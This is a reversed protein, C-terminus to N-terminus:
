YVRALRNNSAVRKPVKHRQNPLRIPGKILDESTDLFNTATYRSATFSRNRAPGALHYAVCRYKALYTPLRTNHNPQKSAM